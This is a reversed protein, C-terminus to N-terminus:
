EKNAAIQELKKEPSIVGAATEAIKAKIGSAATEGTNMAATVINQGLVAERTAARAAAVKRNAEAGARLAEAVRAQSEGVM